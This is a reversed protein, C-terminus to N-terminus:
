PSCNMPDGALGQVICLCNIYSKCGSSCVVAQEGSYRCLLTKYVASEPTNPMHRDNPVCTSLLSSSCDLEGGADSQKQKRRLDIFMAYYGAITSMRLLARQGSSNMHGMVCSIIFSGTKILSVPWTPLRKTVGEQWMRQSSVNTIRWVLQLHAHM